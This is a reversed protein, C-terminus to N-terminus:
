DAVYLQGIADDDRGHAFVRRFFAARGVPVHDMQAMQCQGAGRQQERLGGRHFGVAANRRPIEAQPGVFGLGRQALHDRGHAAVRGDLQADLQAMGAALCGAVRGPVAALEHRGAFAAPLPPRRRGHRVIRMFGRGM